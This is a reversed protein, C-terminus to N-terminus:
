ADLFTNCGGCEVFYLVAVVVVVMSRLVYCGGLVAEYIAHFGFCVAQLYFSMCHCVLVPDLFLGTCM